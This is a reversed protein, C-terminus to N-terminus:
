TKSNRRTSYARHIGHCPGREVSHNRHFLGVTRNHINALDAIHPECAANYIETKGTALVSAMALTPRFEKITPGSEDSVWVGGSCPDLGIGESDGNGTLAIGVAVGARMNM